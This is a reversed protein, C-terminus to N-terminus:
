KIGAITKIIDKFSADVSLSLFYTHNVSSETILPHQNDVKYWMIGGNLRFGKHFRWGAGVFPSGVGILEKYSDDEYSGIRQAIGLFFSLKKWIRDSHKLQSFKTHRNVPRIHFNVGEFFFTSGISPAVMLGIDFGFYNSEKTEINEITHIPLTLKYKTYANTYLDKFNNTLNSLIGTNKDINDIHVCWKELNSIIDSLTKKNIVSSKNSYRINQLNIFTSLLLQGSKLDYKKNTNKIINGVIKGRGMLIELIYSNSIYTDPNQFSTSSWRYLDDSIFSLMSELTAKEDIVSNTPKKIKKEFEKKDLINSIASLITDRKQDLSNMLEEISFANFNSEYKLQEYIAYIINNKKSATKFVADIELNESIQQQLNIPENTEDYLKGSKLKKIVIQELKKNLEKFDGGDIKNKKPDYTKNIESLIEQKLTKQVKEGLAVKEFFTFELIYIENDHLPDMLIEFTKNEGVKTKPFKIYGDSDIPYINDTLYYHDKKKYYNCKIISDKGLETNDRQQKTDNKKQDNNKKCFGKIKYKLQVSSVERKTFTGTIYFAEDFPIKLKDADSIKGTQTNLTITKDTKRQGFGVFSSLILLLMVSKNM